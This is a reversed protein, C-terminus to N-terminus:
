RSRKLARRQEKESPPTMSPASLTWSVIQTVAEGAARDFADVAADVSNMTAPERKEVVTHAVIVHGDHSILRAAITVVATPVGDPQAYRAEFTRIDTELIYDTRVGAAESAVQEIRGSKEFTQVLADQLINPLKDSWAANAYYDQTNSSRSIAIRDTDLNNAADPRDIALAASVGPGRLDGLNPRLVYIQPAEPPGIVDKVSCASLTAAAVLVLFLARQRKGAILGDIM